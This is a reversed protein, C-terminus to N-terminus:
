DDWSGESANSQEREEKPVFKYMMVRRNGIKGAYYVNGNSDVKEDRAPWLGGSRTRDKFDIKGEPEPADAVYLNWYPPTKVFDAM